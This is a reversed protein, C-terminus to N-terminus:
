VVIDTLGHGHITSMHNVEATYISKLSELYELTLEIPLETRGLKIVEM